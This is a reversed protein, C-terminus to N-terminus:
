LSLQLIFGNSLLVVAFLRNEYICPSGYFHSAGTFLAM